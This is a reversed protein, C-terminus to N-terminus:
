VLFVNRWGVDMLPIVHLHEHSDFTNVVSYLIHKKTKQTTKTKGQM